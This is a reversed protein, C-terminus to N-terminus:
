RRGGTNPLWRLLVREARGVSANLAIGCMATVLIVAYTEPIQYTAQFQFIKRGLGQEALGIFMEIGIVLVLAYSVAIRVGSLISPLAEYFMVDAIMRIPRLELLEGQYVRHRNALAAGTVTNILIVLSSPYTAVAVISVEGIGVVLLLVPFLATAPVSRLAHVPGEIYRYIDDRYGLLLGTPVGVTIAVAVACIVRWGSAMLDALLTGDIALLAGSVLVAAPSPLVLEDVVGSAVQWAVGIGAWPWLRRIMGVPRFTDM